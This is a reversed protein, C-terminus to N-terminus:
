LMVKMLFGTPLFSFSVPYKQAPRGTGARHVFPILLGCASGIVAGSLVDTIFHNGSLVRMTGVTAAATLCAATFPLRRPSDPYYSCYVYSAFVASAFVTTTHGSPWSKVYDGPVAYHTSPDEHYTYPRWRHAFAKLGEKIGQSFMVTELYMVLVTRADTGPLVALGAPATAMIWMLVTASIDLPRNYCASATRDFRNVAASDRITKDWDPYPYLQDAATGAILVASGTCLLPIDKQTSLTFAADASLRSSGAAAFLLLIVTYRVAATLKQPM